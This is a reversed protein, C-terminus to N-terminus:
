HTGVCSAVAFRTYPAIYWQPLNDKLYKPKCKGTDRWWREISMWRDGLDRIFLRILLMTLYVCKFDLCLRLFSFIKCSLQSNRYM